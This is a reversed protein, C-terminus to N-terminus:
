LNEDRIYRLCCWLCFYISEMFYSLDTRNWLNQIVCTILFWCRWCRRTIDHIRKTSRYLIFLRTGLTRATELEIIILPWGVKSGLCSTLACVWSEFTSGKRSGYIPHSSTSANSIIKLTYRAFNWLLCQFQECSSFLLITLCSHMRSVRLWALLDFARWMVFLIQM